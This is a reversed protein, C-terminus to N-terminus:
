TTAASNLIGNDLDYTLIALYGGAAYIGVSDEICEGIKVSLIHTVM